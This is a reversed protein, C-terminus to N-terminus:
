TSEIQQLPLSFTFTSGNNPISKVWIKGGLRDIFDKCLVLGLGTGQEKETGVTNTRKDMEFIASIKEPPIGTGNDSVSIHVEDNLDIATISVKSGRVSFKISNSILNRLITDLMNKDAKVYYNSKINVNLQIEKNIATNEILSVSEAIQRKLHLREPNFHKHGTQNQAWLLLNELLKYAQTSASEITKLGKVLTEEDLYNLNTLLLDSFGIIANFPSKLDHAIISFFKDKTSNIKQLEATQKELLLETKKRESIDAFQVTIKNTETQFVQVNFFGSVNEHEYEIEFEKARTEGKAISKYLLPIDTDALKPFAEEITKGILLDHSINLIKDAMPNSGTLILQNRQNLYYFYMGSLSNEVVRRFKEETIRLAEEALKRETIDEVTGDYYLTKGNPDHIAQSSERLYVTKGDKRTWATEAGSIFNEKEIKDIFQKRNHSPEFGEKELNRATLEEFNKYGLIKVLTPNALIIQGEPTTRYLGITSNEYLSRFREESEALAEEARKRKTIDKSVCTVYIIQGLDDKIPDVMTLLYHINGTPTVVKVEIEDKEGTKFVKRVTTLRKEAEDFSFIAHPTKGIIDEPNKGFHRAFTDNVFRYTEDPNFSFIPDSSYEILNRYKSESENLTKESHKRETIDTSHVIYGVIENINNFTPSIYCELYCIGEKTSQYLNQNKVLDFDYTLEYKVPHGSKIQSIIQAPLHPNTFLDFGRVENPSKMGFLDICARNINELKGKADYIEISFPSQNFIDIFKQYESNTPTIKNEKSIDKM